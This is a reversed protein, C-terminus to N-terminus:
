ESSMRFGKAALGQCPGSAATWPSLESNVLDECFLGAVGSLITGGCLCLALEKKRDHLKLSLLHSHRRGDRHELGAVESQSGLVGEALKAGLWGSREERNVTPELRCGADEVSLSM